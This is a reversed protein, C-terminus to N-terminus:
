THRPGSRMAHLDHVCQSVGSKLDFHAELATHHTGSTGGASARKTPAGVRGMGDIQPPPAGGPWGGGQNLVWKWCGPNAVGPAPVLCFRKSGSGELEPARGLV